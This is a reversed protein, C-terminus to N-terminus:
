DEEYCAPKDKWEWIKRHETIGDLRFIRDEGSDKLLQGKRCYAIVTSMIKKTRLHFCDECSVKGNSGKVRNDM